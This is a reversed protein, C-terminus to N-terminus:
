FSGGTYYRGSGYPQPSGPVPRLPVAMEERVTGDENQVTVRLPDAVIRTTSDGGAAGPRTGEPAPTSGPMPAPTAGPASSPREIIPAPPRQAGAPAPAPAVGTLGILAAEAETVTPPAGAPTGPAAPQPPQAAGVPAAQGFNPNRMHYASFRETVSTRAAVAGARDRPREWGNVLVDNAEAATRTGRLRAGVNDAGPSELMEWYSMRVQDEFSAAYYGGPPLRFQREMAARRAPDHQFVGRSNGSDGRSRSRFGSEGHAQAVVAMAQTHTLGRAIGQDYIHRARQAGQEATLSEGPYNGEGGDGGGADGGGSRTPPGPDGRGNFLSWLRSAGSAGGGGPSLLGAIDAESGGPLASAVIRGLYDVAKGLIDTLGVMGETLRTTAPLLAEGLRTLANELNAMGQQVRRGETEGADQIGEGPLAGGRLADVVQEAERMRGGFVGSIGSIRQFRSASPNMRDFDSLAAAGFTGGGPLAGFMGGQIYYEQEYPDSVGRRRLVGELFARSAMGRGGGGQFTSDARALITEGAGFRSNPNAASLSAFATAFATAQGPDNGSAVMRDMFRTVAGGADEQQGRMNARVMIDGVITAFRQTDLGYRSAIAGQRTVEDVDGGGARAFGVMNRVGRSLAEPSTENTLRTWSTSLRQADQYTIGLGDSTKHVSERLLDFSAALGGMRRMLTDTGITDRQALGVSHTVMGVIGRVGSAAMMAMGFSRAAGWTSSGIRQGIGRRGGPGGGDDGAEDDSPAPPRAPPPPSFRTGGLVYRGANTYHRQWDDPRAQQWRMPDFMGGPAFPSGNRGDYGASAAVNRATAATAGRADRTLREVQDQIRRLDAGFDKLEPHSLDLKAFDRGEQGAARIAGRIRDLATTVSGADASIPIRVTM